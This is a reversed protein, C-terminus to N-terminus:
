YRGEVADREHEGNEELLLVLHLGDGCGAMNEVRDGVGVGAAGFVVRDVDGRLKRVRLVRRTELAGRGGGGHCAGGGGLRERGEEGGEAGEGLDEDGVGGAFVDDAGRDAGEHVESAEGGEAVVEGGSVGERHDEGCAGVM